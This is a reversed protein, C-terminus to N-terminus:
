KTTLKEMIQNYVKSARQEIDNVIAITRSNLDAAYAEDNMLRTNIYVNMSAGKAATTIATAAVAVDSLALVSGKVALEEIIGITDECTKVIDFPASSATKLAAELIEDRGETDKPIGYAKSLPEFVEADKEILTLFRENLVKTEDIIREIDAQYQAYKKKGTTLNAVMSCLSSSVAGVLASAGGGGPVPASSSLVETFENITKNRM